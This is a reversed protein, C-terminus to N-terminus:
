IKMYWEAFDGYQYKKGKEKKFGNLECINELSGAKLGGFVWGGRNYDDSWSYTTDAKLGKNSTKKTKPDYHKLNLVSLYHFNSTNYKMNGIVYRVRKIYGHLYSPTHRYDAVDKYMRDHLIDRYTRGHHPKKTNLVEKIEKLKSESCDKGDWGYANKITDRVLWNILPHNIYDFLESECICYAKKEARHYHNFYYKIKRNTAYVKKYGYMDGSYIPYPLKNQVGKYLMKNLKNKLELLVMSLLKMPKYEREKLEKVVRNFLTRKTYRRPNFTIVKHGNPTIREIRESM